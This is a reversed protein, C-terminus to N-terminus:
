GTYVAVSGDDSKKTWTRGSDDTVTPEFAGSYTATEGAVTVTGSVKRKASTVTLEIPSKTTDVTASLPATAM